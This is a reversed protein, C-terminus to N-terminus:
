QALAQELADGALGPNDALWRDAQAIEFPYTAAMMMQALLPDPYLAIPALMQDIQADSFGGQQEDPPPADPPPEQALAASGLSLALACAFVKGSWGSM